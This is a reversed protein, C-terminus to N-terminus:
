PCIINLVNTWEGQNLKQASSQKATLGQHKFEILLILSLVQIM